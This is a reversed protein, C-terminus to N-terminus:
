AVVVHQVDDGARHEHDERHGADGRQRARVSPGPGTRGADGNVASRRRRRRGTAAPLVRFGALSTTRLVASAGDLPDLLLSWPQALFGTVRYSTKLADSIADAASGISGTSGTRRPWGSQGIRCPPTARRAGHSM